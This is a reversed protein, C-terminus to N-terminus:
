STKYREVLKFAVVERFNSRAKTNQQSTTTSTSEDSLVQQESEASELSNSLDRYVAGNEPVGGAMAFMPYVPYDKILM